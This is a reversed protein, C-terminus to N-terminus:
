KIFIEVAKRLHNAVYEQDEKELDTYFPIAITRGSIDETVSLTGESWGLERYPRQLHVPSFYNRCQIGNEELYKMVNDRISKNAPKPLRVVYVFWSMKTVYDMVKPTEIGSDKLLEEYRKAVTNRKDIITDIRKMQSWGLAASMEDIRYNYGIYDHSLWGQGEGRGQNRMAASLKFIEDSDTVIIGGEGTTIQKNPYFAFAGALGFTGVKKGKYESGLAECSDEIIKVDYKECVNVVSDWDLPHGFVDVAMLFMSRYKGANKEVVQEFHEMDMNMTEPEIDVFEVNGGEYLAVNASAVFTFSPVILLDDKGFGLAKIILHLASTGSSVAVAYKTGVYSAISEEFMRTYKGISLRGSKLVEVVVEIDGESIQPNSLPVTKKGKEEM